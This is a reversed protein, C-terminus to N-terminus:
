TLVFCITLCVLLFYVIPPCWVCWVIISYLQLLLLSDSSVVISMYYFMIILAFKCWFNSENLENMVLYQLCGIRRLLMTGMKTCEFLVTLAFPTSLWTLHALSPSSPCEHMNFVLLIYKYVIICISSIAYLRNLYNLVERTGSYSICCVCVRESWVPCNRCWGDTPMEPQLLSFLPPGLWWKNRLM